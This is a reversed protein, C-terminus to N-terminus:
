KLKVKAGKKPEKQLDNLKNDEVYYEQPFGNINRWIEYWIPVDKLLIIASAGTGFKLQDPWPKAGQVEKILIRFKGNASVNSEIAIVEGDFMGYSAQPWGSFVIAPFGDFMFRVNRGISLLPLDVPRVYLEVAHEIGGVPVIQLLREGDKVIENIGAKSANVVQGDQSAKLYYQGSRIIYNSYQNRLKAVEGIATAIESQAAARDSQIKFMKEAYEQQVQELEIKTNVFKIQTSMKKALADQYKQNRQELQVKSVM